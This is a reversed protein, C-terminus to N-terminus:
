AHSRLKGIRCNVSPKQCSSSQAADRLTVLPKRRPLSIPDFFRQDWSVLKAGRDIFLRRRTSIPSPEWNRLV